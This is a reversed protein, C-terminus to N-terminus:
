FLLFQTREPASSMQSLRRSAPRLGAARTADFRLIIVTLSTSPDAIRSQTVAFPMLQASKVPVHARVVGLRMALPPTHLRLLCRALVDNCFSADGTCV